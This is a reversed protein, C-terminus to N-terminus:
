PLKKSVTENIYKISILWSGWYDRDAYRTQCKDCMYMLNSEIQPGHPNIKVQKSEKRYDCCDCVDKVKILTM